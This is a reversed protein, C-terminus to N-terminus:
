AFLEPPVYDEEPVRLRRIEVVPGDGALHADVEFHEDPLEALRPTEYKTAGVRALADRAVEPLLERVLGRMAGSSLDDHALPRRGGPGVLYPKEGAHLVARDGNAEALAHFLLSVVRASKEHQTM